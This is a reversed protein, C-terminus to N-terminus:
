TLGSNSPSARVQSHDLAECLMVDAARMNMNWDLEGVVAGGAAGGEM